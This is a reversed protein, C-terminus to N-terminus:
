KSKYYDLIPTNHKIYRSLKLIFLLKLLIFMM